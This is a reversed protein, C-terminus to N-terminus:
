NTNTQQELVHSCLKFKLTRDLNTRLPPGDLKEQSHTLNGVVTPHNKQIREMRMRKCQLITGFM